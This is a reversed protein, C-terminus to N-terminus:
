RVVIMPGTLDNNLDWTREYKLTAADYVEIEYGASYLYLKRGDSSIGMAFRAKCPFEQIQNVRNSSLDFAWFECRKSGQAGSTVVTYAKKRDPTVQLAGMGAPPPGIPNYEVHRSALDFDAIGFLRTHIVPDTSNFLSIHKGPEAISSLTGGLGVTDMDPLEPQSLDMRDVAKFDSTSLVLVRDRFQYLYKGDPSVELRSGNEGINARVDEAPIDVTRAIKEAAVDIVTYKPKGVEYRDSLKDFETTVAYLLNGTPDPALGDDFLYRKAATDLVFHKTVKRTAIDIVEIGTRDNTTVFIQKEDQSLRMTRPLGTAMTIRDVIQGKAEDFVLVRDPYAALFLTGASLPGSLAAFILLFKKM